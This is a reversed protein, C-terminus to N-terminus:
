PESYTMAPALYPDGVPLPRVGRARRSAFATAFGAVMLPAAVDLWSFSIGAPYLSPLVLWYVDLMHMVLLLVGLSWMFQPRRKTARPLLALFPIAFQGVVVLLALTGWSGAGRTVYWSSDLPIDGIWIILFQSFAIYAWFIVFTLQLKGLAGFHEPTVAGDLPAHARSAVRAIVAILGLAALFGGAFVYVGYVTSYWTPDLSMLWDFSAFTMTLGVIVLGSASLRRVRRTAHASAMGDLGDMGLSRRRIAADVIVWVALYIVGRVVFFPVNLWVGKRAVIPQADTPLTGPSTWSYIVAVGVFVPLALVAVAPMAGSIGLAVRRMVTFWRAGTVHSMLLQILAGVVITFVTAYAFVYSILAQRPEVLLGIVFLVLGVSGVILADRELRRM